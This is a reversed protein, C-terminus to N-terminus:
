RVEELAFLERLAASYLRSDGRQAQAKLRVTPEHLLKNVIARSFANLVERDREPLPGLRRLARELEAQRIREARARLAKITPTVELSRFWAMFRTVEEQVIPRAQYAAHRRKQRGTEVVNQLDDINRLTVGPIQAAQPEIDRPVAIDILLLPRGQRQAMAQRVVDAWIVIHPAATASLALDVQALAKPLQDLPLAQGGFQQAMAVAREYTRNAVWIGGIGHAHLAKAALTSMKGTGVLLVCRGELSGLTQRALEVAASSISVPHRGIETETRVRKGTHIAQQFLASLLPGPAELAQAMEFAERVQGLIQAEGLIMSDLGSAVRFLHAVANRDACAYLHPALREPSLGHFDALFRTLTAHGAAVEQAVGYVETRNCTTLIVAERIRGSEPPDPSLLQRLGEELSCATYTLQERLAVPATTHNLGVLLIHM